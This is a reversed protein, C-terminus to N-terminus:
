LQGRATSHPELVKSSRWSHDWHAGFPAM